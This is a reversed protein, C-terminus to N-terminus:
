SPDGERGGAVAPVISIVVGASIPSDLGQLSRVNRDGLYVNVFNRLEGEGDLLREALGEHREGLTRLVERVTSGEAALEGAGGTFSRLPAPIRVTAQSM